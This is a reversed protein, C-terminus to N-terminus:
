PADRAAHEQYAEFIKRGAPGRVFLRKDYGRLTVAMHNVLLSREPQVTAVATWPIHAPPHLIRFPWVVSLGLGSAGVTVTVTNRYRAPFLGTGIRLTVFRFREGPTAATAPFKQALWYWGGGLAILACTVIWALTLSLTLVTITVALEPATNM